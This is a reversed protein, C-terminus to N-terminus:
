GRYAFQRLDISHKHKTPSSQQPKHVLRDDREPSAAVQKFSASKPPLKIPSKM